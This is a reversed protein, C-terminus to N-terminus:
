PPDLDGEPRDFTARSFGNMGLARRAGYRRGDRWVGPLYIHVSDDGRDDLTKANAHISGEQAAYRRQTHCRSSPPSAGLRM